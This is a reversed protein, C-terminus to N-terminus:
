HGRCPCRMAELLLLRDQRGEVEVFWPGAALALFCSSITPKWHFRIGLDLKVPQEPLGPAIYSQREWPFNDSPRGFTEGRRRGVLTFFLHFFICFLPGHALRALEM